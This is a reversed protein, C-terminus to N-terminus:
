IRFEGLIEKLNEYGAKEVAESFCMWQVEDIGEEKQPSLREPKTFIMSYWHTTKGIMKGKEKYEHYTTGLKRSISPLSSGVEEAVERAACMEISEPPELKGKPLDWVGNRLIMLVEPEADIEEYRFVIGGAAIVQEITQNSM